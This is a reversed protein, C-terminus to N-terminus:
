RAEGTKFTYSVPELPVGAASQFNKHSFSNLGLRYGHNPKLEVPLVCTRQEATWYPGKGEVGDPYEPGGGTWSFGGGMPVSFTVRLETLGPDVDTAGNAPSMELVTPVQTKAKLEESAGQTTFYIAAPPTPMGARSRFNRHSKSNIGVRYYRGAELKVPLVCTRADRWRPGGTVEPYDPGGGTWSFGGAMDQDFTVTIESTVPDVEAAGVAPTTGVMRPPENGALVAPASPDIRLSNDGVPTLALGAASLYAEILRRAEQKPVRGNSKLTCTLKADVQPSLIVSRGTLEAYFDAVMRLPADTFRISVMQEPAPILEGGEGAVPGAAWREAAWGINEFQELQKKLLAHEEADLIAAARQMFASQWREWHQRAAEDSMPEPLPQEKDLAAMLDRLATEKQESLQKQNDALDTKLNRLIFGHAADAEDREAPHPLQEVIPGLLAFDQEEIYSKADALFCERWRTSTLPENDGGSKGSLKYVDDSTTWMLKMLNWETPPALTRGQEALAAKFARLIGRYAVGDEYLIFLKASGPQLLRRIMDDREKRLDRIAQEIQARQEETAGPLRQRRREEGQRLFYNWTTEELAQRTETAAKPHELREGHIEEFQQKHWRRWIATVNPDRAADAGRKEEPSQAKAEDLRVRAEALIRKAEANGPELNLWNQAHRAALDYYGLEYQTSALGALAATAGPEAAVALEWYRIAEHQKRESKAIWGLGNLAGANKPDLAVCREFAERANQAQGMNQRSWGLGNWADALKPDAEAAQLFLKEAEEFKQERWVRWARASLDQAAGSALRSASPPHLRTRAQRRVMSYALHGFLGAVAVAILVVVVSEVYMFLTPKAPPPESAFEAKHQRLHILVLVSVLTGVPFILLWPIAIIHLARYFWPARYRCGGLALILMFWGAVGGLLFGFAFPATASGLAQALSVPQQTKAGLNSFALQIVTWLLSAACLGQLFTGAAALVKGISRKGSLKLVMVAEGEPVGHPGLPEEKRAARDLDRVVDKMEAYRDRLERAMCWEAIRALARSAEQNVQLVPRPPGALIKDVIAKPNIGEYPKSGTLMEYLVAGFAYIDCRTDEAKGSAALPSMYAATGEPASKDPDVMADNFVTRLLGFDTLYARGDQDLLVNAPKLDRHIIGRAHAYQLADAIQRAIDLARDEPLPRGPKIAQALSGGEVFPMVYYPGERRDSVELVKLINPHSMRYMHQAEALFRRVVWEEKRYRPRIMKIAVRGETVPERALFVQGMGGTALPRLIEFRGVGGRAGPRAPANLMGEQIMTQTVDADGESMPATNLESKPDHTNM